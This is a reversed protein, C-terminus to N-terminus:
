QDSFEKAPWDTTKAIGSFLTCDVRAVSKTFSVNIPSLTTAAVARSARSMMWSPSLGSWLIPPTAASM